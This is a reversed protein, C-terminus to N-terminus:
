MWKKEAFYAQVLCDTLFQNLLTHTDGLYTKVMLLSDGKVMWALICM